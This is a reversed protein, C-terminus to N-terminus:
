KKRGGREKISLHVTAAEGINYYALSNSDKFFLGETLRLKQKSPALGIVEQIKAKLVSVQDTLPETVTIIQGNLNLEPKEPMNPCAVIFTAPSKNSALFVVEPILADELTKAKKAAPEEEQPPIVPPPQQPPPIQMSPPPQQMPPLVPPASTLLPPRHQPPMQNPQPPYPSYQHQPPPQMGLLPSV